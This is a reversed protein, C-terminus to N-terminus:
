GLHAAPVADGSQETTEGPRPRPTNMLIGVLLAAAVLIGSAWAFATTYGEVLGAHLVAPDGIESARDALYDDTANTALTNLLATAISGGIQQATNVTGSAVGADQPRVGHTAYNIAPAMVLGMGFGIILQGTLPGSVYSTDPELTTLWALGGAAILLGPVMLARPPVKPLLRTAIGGAAVAVALTMPLFALGAKVPSYGMVVQAHFTLFFLTGLMGIIAFGVALYAGGRTRDLVVRLPLLPEATRREVLVFAILLVGGTALMGIVMGSSWGESEAESLGYVLAVLGATVLLVGPIDLRARVAPRSDRMLGTGCLALVAIVCNVYMCWRWDFADTLWGGLLLGIAGGGAAIGGFIGFAKARERTETFAVSLLSLAAPALLAGFVGQLARSALLLGFSGAAGGLASALAFGVAGIVFARKRGTYDAIRGGLLLLSGFALTYATVVWQRDGDSFGLDAQASPLAINVITVDLVVMLQALCIFVLALWRRSNERAPPDSHTM